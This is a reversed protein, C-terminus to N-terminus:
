CLCVFIRGPTEAVVPELNYPLDLLELLAETQPNRHAKRPMSGRKAQPLTCRLLVSFIVPSELGGQEKCHGLFGPWVM